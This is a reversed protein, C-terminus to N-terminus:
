SMTATENAGLTVHVTATIPADTTSNYAVAVIGTTYTASKLNALTVDIDANGEDLKMGTVQYTVSTVGTLDTLETVTAGALSVANADVNVAKDFHLTVTNADPDWTVSTLEPKTIPTVM